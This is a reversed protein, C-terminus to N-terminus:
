KVPTLVPAGKNKILVVIFKAPKTSSANRGVTHVDDPGEHYTDGAHLTVTKGGNLGMVISGDLVYVFAHADHRHVPDVAGPPYDVAIMEVEKGPYEPLPETTLQTVTAHPAAAAPQVAALLSLALPALALMLRKM